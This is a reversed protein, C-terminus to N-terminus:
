NIMEPTVLDGEWYEFTFKQVPEQWAITGVILRRKDNTYVDKFFDEGRKLSLYAANAFDQHFRFMQSNVYYIKDNNRRDIIFMLHPLAYPTKANYVRALQDFDAQSNLAPLFRKGAATVKIGEQGARTPSPKRAMQAFTEGCISVCCVLVILALKLQRHSFLSM